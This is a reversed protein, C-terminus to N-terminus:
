CRLLGWEARHSDSSPWESCECLARGQLWRPGTAVRQQTAPRSLSLQRRVQDRVTEAPGSSHDQSVSGAAPRPLRHLCSTRAVGRRQRNQRRSPLSVRVFHVHGYDRRFGDASEAFGRHQNYEFRKLFSSSNKGEIFLLFRTTIPMKSVRNIRPIGTFGASCSTPPKENARTITWAQIAFCPRIKSTPVGGTRTRVGWTNAHM